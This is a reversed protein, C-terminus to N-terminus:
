KLYFIIEKKKETPDPISRLSDYLDKEYSSLIKRNVRLHGAYTKQVRTDNLVHELIATFSLTLVVIVSFILGLVNM